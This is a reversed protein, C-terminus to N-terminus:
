TTAKHDDQDTFSRDLEKRIANMEEEINHRDEWLGAAENVAEKWRAMEESTDAPPAFDVRAGGGSFYSIHIESEAANKLLERVEEHKNAM